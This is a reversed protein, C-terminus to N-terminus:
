IPKDKKKIEKINKEMATKKTAVYNRALNVGEKYFYGVERWGFFLM